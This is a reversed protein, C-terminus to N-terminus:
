AHVQARGRVLRLPFEIVRVKHVLQVHQLRLLHFEHRRPRAREDNQGFTERHLPATRPPYLAIPGDEAHHLEGRVIEELREHDPDQGPDLVRLSIPRLPNAPERDSVGPNQCDHAAISGTHRDHHDHM